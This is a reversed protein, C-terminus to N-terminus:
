GSVGVYLHYEGKWYFPMTDGVQRRSPVFRFNADVPVEKSSNEVVAPATNEDAIATNEFRALGVLILVALSRTKM